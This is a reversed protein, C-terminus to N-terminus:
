RAPGTRRASRPARRPRRPRARRRSPRGAHGSVGDPGVAGDKGVPEDGDDLVVARGAHQDGGDQLLEGGPRRQGDVALVVRRERGPQRHGVVPRQLAAPPEADLGDRRQQADPVAALHLPQLAPPALVPLAHAADGPEPLAQGVVPRAAAAQADLRAGLLLQLPAEAPADQGAPLDLQGVELVVDLRRVRAAPGVPQRDHRGGLVPHQPHEGPRGPRRVLDDRDDRGVQHGARDLLDGDVGHHGAAQGLVQRDHQGGDLGGAGVREVHM